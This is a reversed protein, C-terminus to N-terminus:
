RIRGATTLQALLEAAVRQCSSAREDIHLTTLEYLENLVPDPQFSPQLQDDHAIPLQDQGVTRLAESGCDVVAVSHCTVELRLRSSGMDHHIRGPGEALRRNSINTGIRQGLVVPRSRTGFLQSVEIVQGALLHILRQAILQDNSALSNGSPTPSPATM